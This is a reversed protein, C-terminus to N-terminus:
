KEWKKYKINNDEIIIYYNPLLDNLYLGEETYPAKLNTHGVIQRYGKIHNNLLAQPRIWIPSQSITNGSPSYGMDDNWNLKNLNITYLSLDKVDEINAINNLWYESIGAHSIIIDDQIHILDILKNEFLEDLLLKYTTHAESKYGSCRESNYYSHDHNGYLLICKDGLKKKYEIINRFNEAIVKYDLTFSDLYDGLFVVKDFTEKEIIDKWTNHGHIDGLVLTKM